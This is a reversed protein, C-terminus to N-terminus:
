KSCLTEVWSDDIKRGARDFMQRAHEQIVSVHPEVAETGEPGTFCFRTGESMIIYAWKM